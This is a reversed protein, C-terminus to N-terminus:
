RESTSSVVAFCFSRKVIESRRKHVRLYVGGGRMIPYAEAPWTEGFDRRLTWRRRDRNNEDHTRPGVPISVGAAASNCFNHHLQIICVSRGVSTQAAASQNSEVRLLKNCPGIILKQKAGIV